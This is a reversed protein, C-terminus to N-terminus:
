LTPQRGREQIGGDGAMQDFWQDIESRVPCCRGAKLREKERGSDRQLLRAGATAMCTIAVAIQSRAAISHLEEGRSVPKSLPDEVLGSWV